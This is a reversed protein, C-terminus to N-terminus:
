LSETAPADPEVVVGIDVSVEDELMILVSVEEVLIPESVDEVIRDPDSEIFYNFSKEYPL